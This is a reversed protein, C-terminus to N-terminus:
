AEPLGWDPGPSTAGDLALAEANRKGRQGLAELAQLLQQLDRM